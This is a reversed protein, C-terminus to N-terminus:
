HRVFCAPIPPLLPGKEQKSSCPVPQGHTPLLLAFCLLAFFCFFHFPGATVLRCSRQGRSMTLLGMKRERTLARGLEVTLSAQVLRLYNLRHPWSQDKVTPAEDHDTRSMEEAQLTPPQCIHLCAAPARCCSRGGAARRRRVRLASIHIKRPNCPINTGRRPHRCADTGM